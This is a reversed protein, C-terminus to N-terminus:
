GVDAIRGTRVLRRRAVPDALGAVVWLSTLYVLGVLELVWPWPSSVLREALGGWWPSPGVPIPGAVPWLFVETEAWMGDLLLHLFAGVVVAMGARRRSGRRTAALVVIALGTPAVLSHAWAESTSLREALVLTGIPIDVLDPLVAGLALWRMDVSPDRFIWRFLFFTAGLHWLLM